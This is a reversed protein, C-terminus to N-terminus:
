GEEHVYRDCAYMCRTAAALFHRHLPRVPEIGLVWYGGLGRSISLSASLIPALLIVQLALMYTRSPEAKGGGRMDLSHYSHRNGTGPVYNARERTPQRCTSASIGRRSGTYRIMTQLWMWPLLYSSPPKRKLRTADVDLFWHM